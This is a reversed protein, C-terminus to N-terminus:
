RRSSSGAQGRVPLEALGGAVRLRLHFPQHGRARRARAPQAAASTRAASFRVRINAPRRSSGFYWM